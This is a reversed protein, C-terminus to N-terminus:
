NLFKLISIFCFCAIYYFWGGMGHPASRTDCRTWEHIFLLNFSAFPGDSKVVEEVDWVPNCSAGDPGSYFYKCKTSLLNLYM